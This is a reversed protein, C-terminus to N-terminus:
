GRRGRMKGMPDADLRLEPIECAGALCTLSVDSPVVVGSMDLVSEDIDGLRVSPEGCEAQKDQNM